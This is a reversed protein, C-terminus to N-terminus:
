LARVKFLYMKIVYIQFHFREYRQTHALLGNIHMKASAQFLPPVNVYKLPLFSNRQGGILVILKFM